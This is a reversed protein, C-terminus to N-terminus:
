KRKNEEKADYYLAEIIRLMTEKDNPSVMRGNFTVEEEALLKALDKPQKPTPTSTDNGLLYDVSVNFYKAMTKLQEPDPSREGKEWRSITNQNVSFIKALETQSLKRDKRLLALNLLM